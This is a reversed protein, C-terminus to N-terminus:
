AAATAAARRGAAEADAARSGLLTVALGLRVPRRAGRAPLDRRRARRDAATRHHLRHLRRHVRCGAVARVAAVRGAASFLLPVANAIGVGILAFGVVAVAPEGILLTAALAATVLGMGASLLRGSGWRRALGDGALRALAM